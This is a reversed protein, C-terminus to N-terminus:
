KWISYPLFTSSNWFEKQVAAPLHEVQVPLIVAATTYSRLAGTVFLNDYNRLQNYNNIASTEPDRGEGLIGTPITHQSTLFPVM